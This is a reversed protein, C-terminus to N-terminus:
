GLAAIASRKRGGADRLNPQKNEVGMIANDEPGAALLGFPGHLPLPAFIILDISRQREEAAEAVADFRLRRRLEFRSKWVPGCCKASQLLM